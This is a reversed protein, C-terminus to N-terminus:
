FNFILLANGETRAGHNIDVVVLGQHQGTAVNEAIRLTFAFNSTIEETGAGRFIGPFSM